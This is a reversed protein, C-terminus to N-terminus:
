NLLLLNCSYFEAENTYNYEFKDKYLLKLQQLVNLNGVGTSKITTSDVRKKNLVDLKIQNEYSLIKITIPFESSKTDGHKFANEIFNILIQPIIFKNKLDGDVRFDIQVDEHLIKQLKLYSSIYGIESELLVPKDPNSDLTYALMESFLEIAEAGSKSNKHIHSYCYNLFNFIIHSNFQNKLFGLQKLLLAKERATQIEISRKTKRNLYAGYAVISTLFFLFSSNLILVYIPAGDYFYKNGLKPILYYFIFYLLCIYIFLVVLLAICMKLISKEYFKPFVFLSESYYIFMSGFMCLLEVLVTTTLKLGEYGIIANIITIGFWAALHKLIVKRNVQFLKM